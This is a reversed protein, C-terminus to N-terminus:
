FEDESDYLELISEDMSRGDPSSDTYFDSAQGAPVGNEPLVKYELPSYGGDGFDRIEQMAAEAEQSEDLGQNGKIIEEYKEYPNNGNEDEESPFIGSMVNIPEQYIKEEIRISKKMGNSFTIELFHAIKEKNEKFVDSKKFIFSKNIMHKDEAIRDYAKDPNFDVAYNEYVENVETKTEYPRILSPKFLRHTVKKDPSREVIWNVNEIQLKNLEDDFSIIRIDEGNPPIHIALKIEFIGDASKYKNNIIVEENLLVEKSSETAEKNKKGFWLFAQSPASFAIQSVLIVLLFRM